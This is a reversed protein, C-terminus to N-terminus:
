SDAACDVIVFRKGASRAQELARRVREPPEGLPHTATGTPRFARPDGSSPEYGLRRIEAFMADRDGGTVRFLGRELDAEVKEVGALGELARM